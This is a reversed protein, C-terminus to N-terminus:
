AGCCMKFKKGSGCPCPDNRGPKSKRSGAAARERKRRFADIGLVSHALVESTQSTLMELVEGVAGLEAQEEESSALALIPFLLPGDNSKGLRQWSKERLMMGEIFGNAWERAILAGTADVRLEPQYEGDAVQALIDNYGDM